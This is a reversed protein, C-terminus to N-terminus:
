NRRISVYRALAAEGLVFLLTALLLTPGLDNGGDDAKAAAAAPLGTLIQELGLAAKAEDHPVYRLDGEDPEVNVAFAAAFPEKGNDRDLQMEVTYFGAHETDRVPPLLFRGNQLARPEGGLPVRGAGDREPSTPDATMPKAM